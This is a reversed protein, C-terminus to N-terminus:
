KIVEDLIRYWNKRFNDRSYEEEVSKCANHGVSKRMNYDKDLMQWVENYSHKNNPDYLFGNFKQTIAKINEWIAPAVVCMSKAMCSLVDNISSLSTSNILHLMGHTKPEVFYTPPIVDSNKIVKRTSSSNGSTWLGYHERSYFIIKDCSIHNHIGHNKQPAEHEVVILPCGYTDALSRCTEYHYEICQCVVVDPIIDPTIEKATHVNVTKNIEFIPKYGHPEYVVVSYDKLLSIMNGLYIENYNLTLIVLKTKKVEKDIKMATGISIQSLGVLRRASNIFLTKIM